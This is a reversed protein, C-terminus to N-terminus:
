CPSLQRSPFPLRCQRPFIGSGMLSTTISMPSQGAGSCTVRTIGTRRRTASTSCEWSRTTSVSGDMGSGNDGPTMDVPGLLFGTTISVTPTFGEYFSTFYPSTGTRTAMDSSKTSFNVWSQKPYVTDQDQGDYDNLTRTYWNSSTGTLSTGTTPEMHGVHLRDFFGTM